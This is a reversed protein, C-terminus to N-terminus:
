FCQVIPINYQIYEQVTIDPRHLRKHKFGNLPQLTIRLYDELKNIALKDYLPFNILILDLNEFAHTAFKTLNEDTKDEKSKRQLDRGILNVLLSNFWGNSRIDFHAPIREVFNRAVCNGVYLPTEMEKFIYVGNGTRIDKGEHFVLEEVRLESLKRGLNASMFLERISEPNHDLIEDIEFYYKNKKMKNLNIIKNKGKERRYSLIIM